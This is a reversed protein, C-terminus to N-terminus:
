RTAPLRADSPRGFADRCHALLAAVAPDESSSWALALAALDTLDTLPVPRLRDARGATMSESLVAVGLGRAALDAVADPSSAQLAITPEIGAASCARDFVTRIGTGRPLCVLPHAALDALTARAPRTLPHGLPVAAVVPEALLTLAHLGAPPVDPTGVLALDVAGARVRDLLQDSDDEVLALEVGPHARHFSALAAFLPAVTCGRVMGVVLRGRVLGTVADVARRVAAASALAARAHELASAGAPTLTATRGSRDILQAGLHRELQRVQASIGSQSVHVRAAARTFSAEEAVAGLYELQRLEM